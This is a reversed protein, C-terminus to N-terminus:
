DFNQDISFKKHSIFEWGDLIFLSFKKHSIIEWGDLILM